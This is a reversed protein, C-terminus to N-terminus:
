YEIGRRAKVGVDFPHKEKTIHSIYDAIEFLRKSKRHGTIIFETDPKNNIIRIIDDEDIFRDLVDLLEDLIIVDSDCESLFRVASDVWKQYEEKDPNFPLKSPSSFVNFPLVFLESSKNDKLFQVISVKLGAGFARMGAGIASTTKGKGDGYYLQIM